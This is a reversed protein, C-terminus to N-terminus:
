KGRESHHEKIQSAIEEPIDIGEQLEELAVPGTAGDSEDMEFQPLTHKLYKEARGAEEPDLVYGTLMDYRNELDKALDKRDQAMLQQYIERLMEVPFQLPVNGYDDYLFRVEDPSNYTFPMEEQNLPQKSSESQNCAFVLTIGLGVFGWRAKKIIEM